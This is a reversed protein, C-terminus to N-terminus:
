ILILFVVHQPVDRLCQLTGTKFLKIAQCSECSKGLSEIDKDLGIWWLYSRALAKM